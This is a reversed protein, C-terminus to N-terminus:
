YYIFKSVCVSIRLKCSTSNRVKPRVSFAYQGQGSRQVRIVSSVTATTQKVPTQTQAIRSPTAGMLWLESENIGDNPAYATMTLMLDVYDEDYGSPRFVINAAQAGDVFSMTNGTGYVSEWVTSNWTGSMEGGQWIPELVLNSSLTLQAGSAYQTQSATDKWGTRSVRGGFYGQLIDDRLSFPMGAEVTQSYSLGQTANRNQGSFTVQVTQASPSIVGKAGSSLINLLWSGSFFRAEVTFSLGSYLGKTEGAAEPITRVTVGSTSVKLQTFNAETGVAAAYALFFSTGDQAESDLQLEVGLCGSVTRVISVSKGVIESSRIVKWGGDVDADRAVIQAQAPADIAGRVYEAIAAGTIPMDDEAFSALLVKSPPVSEWAGANIRYFAGSDRVFIAEGGEADAPLEATTSVSRRSVFRMESIAVADERVSSIAEYTGGSQVLKDSGETPSEDILNHEGILALVEEANAPEGEVKGLDIIMEAM